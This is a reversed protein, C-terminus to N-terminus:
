PVAKYPRIATSTCPQMYAELSSHLTTLITQLPHSYLAPSSIKVILQYPRSHPAKNSLLQINKKNRTYYAIYAPPSVDSEEKQCTGTQTYHNIKLAYSRTNKHILHESFYTYSQVTYILLSKRLIYLTSIYISHRSEYIVAAM